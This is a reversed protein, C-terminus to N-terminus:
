PLRTVVYAVAAAFGPIAIGLLWVVGQVRTETRATRDSLGNRVHSDLADVRSEIRRVAELISKMHSHCLDVQTPNNCEGGM